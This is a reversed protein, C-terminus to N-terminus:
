RKPYSRTLLVKGDTSPASDVCTADIVYAQVRTSDVSHPLVVLYARSGRYSGQEVALAPETRGIGRQICPPVDSGPQLM